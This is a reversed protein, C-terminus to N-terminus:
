VTECDVILVDGSYIEAEKYSLSVPIKRNKRASKVYQIQKIDVNSIGTGSEELINMTNAIRQRNDVLLDIRGQNGTFTIQIQM